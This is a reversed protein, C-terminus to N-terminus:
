ITRSCMERFPSARAISFWHSGERRKPWVRENARLTTPCRRARGTFRRNRVYLLVVARQNDNGNSEASMVKATAARLAPKSCGARNAAVTSVSSRALSCSPSLSPSINISSLDGLFTTQRSEGGRIIRKRRYTKAATVRRLIEKAPRRHIM